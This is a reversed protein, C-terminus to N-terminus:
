RAKGGRTPRRQAPGAKGGTPKKKKQQQEVNKAHRSQGLTVNIPHARDLFPVTPRARVGLESRVALLEEHDPLIKLGAEAAEIAKKRNGSATYVRSLNVYHDGNYFELDIARRCLDIGAKYKKQVLALSLGFYSLGNAAKPNTLPPSDETGYIELFMTLARLYENDRVLVCAADIKKLSESM